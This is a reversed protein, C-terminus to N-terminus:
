EPIESWYADYEVARYCVHQLSGIVILERLSYGEKHILPGSLRFGKPTSAKYFQTYDKQLLWGREEFAQTALMLVEKARKYREWGADDGARVIGEYPEYVLVGFAIMHVAASM